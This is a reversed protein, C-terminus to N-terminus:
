HRENGLDPSKDEFLDIVEQVLSTYDNVEDLITKRFADQVEPPLFQDIHREKASLLLAIMRRSRREVLERVADSSLMANIM